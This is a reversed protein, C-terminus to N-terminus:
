VETTLAPKSFSPKFYKRCNISPKEVLHWSAFAFSFALLSSLITLSFNTSEPLWMVVLQQCIWGYLYVGYSYDGFKNFWGFGPAFALYFVLYPILITYAVGFSPTGHQSAAFFMLLLLVGPGIYIVDKNILCFSGILFMLAVHQHNEYLFLFKWFEPNLYGAIISFFFLFNFVSRKKLVGLVALALVIIYLRVEVVLSWLSGNIAKDHLNEFVGPLFYATNFASINVFFYEWVQQSHLYDPTKTLSLGLIFVTFFVCMILGPYIRLIRSACYYILGNKSLASQTILYGSIVFFVDVAVGGIFKYGVWQLFIDAPGKGTVASAHGYIVALAAILRMLNLNNTKNKFLEGLTDNKM